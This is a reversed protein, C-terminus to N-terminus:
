LTYSVRFIWSFGVKIKEFGALGALGVEYNKWFGALRALGLEDNKLVWSVLSFEDLKEFGM